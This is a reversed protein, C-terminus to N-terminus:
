YIEIRNSRGQGGDKRREPDEAERHVVGIHGVHAPQRPLPEQAARPADRDDAVEKCREFIVKGAHSRGSGSTM